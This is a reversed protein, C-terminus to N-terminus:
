SEQLARIRECDSETLVIPRVRMILDIARNGQVFDEGDFVRSWHDPSRIAGPLRGCNGFEGPELKSQKRFIEPKERLGLQEWNLVLDEAFAKATETLISGHFLM